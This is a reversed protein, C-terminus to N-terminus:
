LVEAFKKIPYKTFGRLCTIFEDDAVPKNIDNFQNLLICDITLNFAEIAKISSLTHSISGLYNTCVLIIPLHLRNAIDLFNKCPNLPSMVGGIGEILIKQNIQSCKEIAKKCFDIVEEFDINDIFNPAVPKEYRWPSILDLNNQNIPLNLAKLIRASDSNEDIKFGSIIPKIAYFFSYKQCLNEVLFTKGIDTGIGLIIAHNDLM